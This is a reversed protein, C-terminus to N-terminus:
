RPEEIPKEARERLASTVRVHAPQQEVWELVSRAVALGAERHSVPCEELHHDASQAEVCGFECRFHKAVLSELPTM